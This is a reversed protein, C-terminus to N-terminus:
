ALSGVLLVRSSGLHGLLGLPLPRGLFRHLLVQAVDVTSLRLPPTLYPSCLPGTWRWGILGGGSQM